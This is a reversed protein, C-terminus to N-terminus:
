SFLGPSHPNHIRLAVGPQESRTPQGRFLGRRAMIDQCTFGMEVYCRKAYVHYTEEFDSLIQALDDGTQTKGSTHASYLDPM